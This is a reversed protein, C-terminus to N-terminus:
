EDIWVTKTEGDYRLKLTEGYKDKLIAENGNMTLSFQSMVFNEGQLWKRIAYEAITKSGTIM